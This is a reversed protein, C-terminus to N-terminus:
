LGISIQYPDCELVKMKEKIEVPKSTIEYKKIMEEIWVVLYQYKQERFYYIEETSDIELERITGDEFIVDWALELEHTAM